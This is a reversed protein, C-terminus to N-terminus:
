ALAMQAWTVYLPIGFLINFPFTLGLSLGLYIAPSAQPLAHRL